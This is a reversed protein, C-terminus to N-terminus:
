PLRWLSHKTPQTAESQQSPSWFHLAMYAYLREFLSSTSKQQQKKENCVAFIFARTLILVLYYSSRLLLVYVKTRLIHTLQDPYDMCRTSTFLLTFALPSPFSCCVESNAGFYFSCPLFFCNVKMWSGQWTQSGGWVCLTLYNGNM